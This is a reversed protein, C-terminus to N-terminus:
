LRWPGPASGGAPFGSLDQATQAHQFILRDSSLLDADALDGLSDPEGQITVTVGADCLQRLSVLSARSTLQSRALDILVGTQPPLVELALPIRPRLMDVPVPWHMFLLDYWTMAM